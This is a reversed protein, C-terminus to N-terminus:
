NHSVIKKMKPQKLSKNAKKKKAHRQNTAYCVWKCQMVGQKRNQIEVEHRMDSVRMDLAQMKVVKSVM